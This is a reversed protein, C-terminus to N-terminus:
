SVFGELGDEGIKKDTKGRMRGTSQYEDMITKRAERVTKAVDPLTKILAASDKMAKIPDDMMSFDIDDCAKRIKALMKLASDLTKLEESDVFPQALYCDIAKRVDNDPKWSPPFGLDRLIQERREDEDVIGKRYDSRPDYMFYIYGIEQLAKAKGLTRDRRYLVSLPKLLLAEPALVINYDKYEVIAM